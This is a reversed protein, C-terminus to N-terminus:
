RFRGEMPLAGLAEEEGTDGILLWEPVPHNGQRFM